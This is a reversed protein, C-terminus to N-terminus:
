VKNEAVQGLLALTDNQYQQFLEPNENLFIDIDKSTALRNIIEIKTKITNALVTAQDSEVAIGTVVGTADQQQIPKGRLTFVLSYMDPMSGGEDVTYKVSSALKPAAECKIAYTILWLVFCVILLESLSEDAIAPDSMKIKQELAVRACGFCEKIKDLVDNEHNSELQSLLGDLSQMMSSSVGSRVVRTTVCFLWSQEHLRKCQNDILKTIALLAEDRIVCNCFDLNIIEYPGLLVFKEWPLSNNKAVSLFDFIEIKSSPDINSNDLLTALRSDARAKDNSSGVFGHVKLRKGNYKNSAAMKRRLYEVDLLDGGPLGFYRITEKQRLYKCDGTLRDLSSWWQADRIYQKRPKHWPKELAGAEPKQVKGTVENLDLFDTDSSFLDM